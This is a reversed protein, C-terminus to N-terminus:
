CDWPLGTSKCSLGEDIELWMKLNWVSLLFSTKLTRRVISMELAVPATEIGALTM